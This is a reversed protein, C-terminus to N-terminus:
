PKVVRPSTQNTTARAEPAIHNKMEEGKQIQTIVQIFAAGGAGGRGSLLAIM